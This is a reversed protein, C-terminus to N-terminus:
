EGFSLEGKLKQKTLKLTKTRQKNKLRVINAQTPFLDLLVESKIQLQKPSQKLEKEFVTFVADGEINCVLDDLVLVQGDVRIEMRQLLYEHIRKCEVADIGDQLKIAKGSLNRIDDELDNTFIKVQVGLIRKEAQFSFDTISVYFAHSPSILMLSFLVSILLNM